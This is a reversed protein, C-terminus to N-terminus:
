QAAGIIKNAMEWIEPSITREERDAPAKLAGSSYYKDTSVLTQNDPAPNESRSLTDKKVYRKPTKDRRVPDSKRGQVEDYVDYFVDFTGDAKREQRKIVYGTSILEKFVSSVAHKGDPGVSSIEAQRPRWYDPKSLLYCLIGKAAWTLTSAELIENRIVTYDNTVHKRFIM